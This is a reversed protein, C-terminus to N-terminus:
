APKEPQCVALWQDHGLYDFVKRLAEVRAECPARAEFVEHNLVTQGNLSWYLVLVWKM